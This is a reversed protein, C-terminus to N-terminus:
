EEGGLLIDLDAEEGKGRLREVFKYAYRIIIAIMFIIYCFYVTRMSLDFVGSNKIKLFQIKDWTPMFLVIFGLVIAASSIMAMIRRGGKSAVLYLMDFTVQDRDRVVFANGIFVIWIWIMTILGVTNGLTIHLPRAIIQAIFIVFLSGMLAATFVEAGKRIASLFRLMANM